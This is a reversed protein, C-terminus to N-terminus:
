AVGGGALLVDAQGSVQDLGPPMHADRHVVMDDDAALSAAAHLRQPQDLTALKVLKMPVPAM